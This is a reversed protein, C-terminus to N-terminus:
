VHMVSKLVAGVAQTTGHLGVQIPTWILAAPATFMLSPFAAIDGSEAAKVVPELSKTWFTHTFLDKFNDGLIKPLDSIGKSDAIASPEPLNIGVSKAALWVPISVLEGFTPGLDAGGALGGGFAFIKWASNLVPIMTIEPFVFNGILLIVGTCVGSMAIFVIPNQEIWQITKDKSTALKGQLYYSAVGGATAATLGGILKYEIRHTFAGTVEWGAWLGFVGAFVDGALAEDKSMDAGM